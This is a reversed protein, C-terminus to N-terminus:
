TPLLTQGPPPRYALPTFTWGANPWPAAAAFEPHVHLDGALWLRAQSVYGYSDSGGAARVGYAYSLGLIIVAAAPAVCPLLLHISRVLRQWVLLLDHRRPHLRSAVVAFVVAFLAL